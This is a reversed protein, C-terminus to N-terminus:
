LITLPQSIQLNSIIRGLIPNSCRKVFCNNDERWSKFKAIKAVPILAAFQLDQFNIAAIM